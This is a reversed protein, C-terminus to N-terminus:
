YRGPHYSDTNGHPAERNGMKHAWVDLLRNVEPDDSGGHQPHKHRTTCGPPCGRHHGKAARSHTADHIDQHQLRAKKLARPSRAASRAHMDENMMSLRVVESEPDEYTGSLALEQGVAMAQDHVSDPAFFEPHASTLRLVEGPVGAALEAAAQYTWDEAPDYDAAAEYDVPEPPYGDSLEVEDGIYYGDQYGDGSYASAAVDDEDGDNDSDGFGELTDVDVGLEGARKRILRKAAAVDGHGTAALHAAAHLHSVDPIPYSGDPLAHGKAALARRDDDSVDASLLLDLGDRYLSAAALALSAPDREGNARNRVETMADTYDWGTLQCMESVATEADGPQPEDSLSLTDMAYRRTAHVSHRAQFRQRAAEQRAQLGTGARPHGQVTHHGQAQVHGPVLASEVMAHQFERAPDPTRTIMAGHEHSQQVRHMQEHMRMMDATSLRTSPQLPNAAMAHAFGPGRGHATALHHEVEAATVAPVRGQYGGVHEERGHEVRIYPRAM